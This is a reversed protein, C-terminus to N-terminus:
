EAHFQLIASQLTFAYNVDEVVQEVDRAHQGSEAIWSETLLALAYEFHKKAVENKCAHAAKKAAAVASDILKLTREEQSVRCQKETNQLM